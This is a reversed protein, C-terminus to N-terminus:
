ATRRRRMMALGGALLLTMSAPEPVGQVNLRVFDFQMWGGGPGRTLTIVNDGAIANVSQGSFVATTQLGNSTLVAGYIPVGNFLAQFPINGTGTGGGFNSQVVDVELFFDGFQHSPALNFHIRNTPDGNTLAREFTNTPSNSVLTGIPSPYNGAFYWDDDRTAPDGPAANSNGNEIVFESQNGNNTGVQWVPTFVASATQVMALTLMAALVTAMRNTTRHNM